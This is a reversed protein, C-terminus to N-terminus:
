SLTVFCDHDAIIDLYGDDIDTTLLNAQAYIGGRVNRNMALFDVLSDFALLGGATRAFDFRECVLIFVVVFLLVRLGRM